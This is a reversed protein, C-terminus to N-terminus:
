GISSKLACHTPTLLDRVLEDMSHKSSPPFHKAVYVKGVVDGLTGNTAGLARRWLPKMVKTGSLTTVYFDFSTKVFKDSLLGASGNVAHWILYTKLDELPTDAILKSVATFFTRNASSPTSPRKQEQEKLYKKWNIHPSLKQLQAVSKKHYTKEPDRLDEKTM